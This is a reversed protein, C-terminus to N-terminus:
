SMGAPRHMIYTTEDPGDDTGSISAMIKPDNRVLVTQGRAPYVDKDEVGGLTAASLGTCNIVVDAAEHSHHLKAADSIHKVIGRKV